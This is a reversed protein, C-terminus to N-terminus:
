KRALLTAAIKKAAERGSKVAGEAHSSYLYDGALFLGANEERLSAQLEDLPSRGPPWAPTAVPHYGYFYAAHVQRSFGPWIKDLERLIKDRLKDQPQLYTRTCDGHILVAFVEEKAERPPQELIGYIVGLTGHTLIPFPNRGEPFPQKGSTFLFRNADTSVIFHVVTYRGASLTDIAQWQQDTLTPEMQIAHLMEHQVAVVVKEAEVSHLANDKLYYVVVSSAGDPRLTHVIRNVRAGLIMPGKLATVLAEIIKQNGGKAHFCQETGHLFMRSELIGYVASVSDWDTAVECELGMRIFEEVKSSLGMSGVWKAFSIKQLESLHPTLGKTEAEDYLSECENVWRDYQGREDSTFLTKLYEDASSQVFPYYSGDIIVSSYAEEPALMPVNLKKVYDLLPDRAWVEHMGFEAKMGNGYDVTAVRGGWYTNAELIQATIGASQLEYAVILGALGGGVIVVRPRADKARTAAVALASAWLLPALALLMGLGWHLLSPARRMKARKKKAYFPRSM